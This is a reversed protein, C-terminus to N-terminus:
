DAGQRTAEVIFDFVEEPKEEPLFHGANKIVHTVVNEAVLKVMTGVHEGLSYEGGVAIVPVKIKNQMLPETEAISDFVARYIGFAGNVGVPGSFTRLLEEIEDEGIADKSATNRNYFWTVFQREKGVFFLELAETAHPLIWWWMTGLQSEMVERKFALHNQLVEHVMVVMEVYLLAHIEKPHDASWILAPAAGMDHAVLTLPKGDGFNLVRVLERFDESLSRASYGTTGAPKDSDGYGRMEPVLVAHGTNALLPMIRKWSNGSGLFGHWLLVPKGSPNGGTFYHLNLGNINIRHGTFKASGLNITKSNIMEDSILPAKM